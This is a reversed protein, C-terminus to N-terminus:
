KVGGGSFTETVDKRLERGVELAKLRRALSGQPGKMKFLADYDYAQASTKKTPEANKTKAKGPKIVSFVYLPTVERIEVLQIEAEVRSRFTTDRKYSYEKINVNVFDYEPTVVTFLETSRTLTDLSTLFINIRDSGSVSLKLRVTFPEQVKNYDAFAGKEVPFMSIQTSLKYEVEMCTDVDFLPDLNTDILGWENGYINM